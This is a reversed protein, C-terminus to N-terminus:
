SCRARRRNPCRPRASAGGRTASPIRSGTASRPSSACRSATANARAPPPAGRARSRAAGPRLGHPRRSARRARARGRAPARRRPAAVRVSRARRLRGRDRACRRARASLAAWAAFASYGLGLLVLEGDFWRSARAIWRLADGGDAVEDRSRRPVGESDGRGRCSQIAVTRGDEALWRALQEVPSVARGGRAPARQPDAGHRPARERRRAAARADRAARRRGGGDVREVRARASRAPPLGLWRRELRRRASLLARRGPRPERRRPVPARRERAAALEADRLGHEDRSIPSGPARSARRRRSRRRRRSPTASRCGTPWRSGTPSRSSRTSSRAGSRKTRLEAIARFIRDGAGGTEPLQPLWVPLPWEARRAAREDAPLERRASPDLFRYIRM